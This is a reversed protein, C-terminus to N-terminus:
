QVVSAAWILPKVPPLAPNVTALDIMRPGNALHDPNLFTALRATFAEAGAPNLHLPDLRDIKPTPLDHADLVVLNPFRAQVSAVFARYRATLGLKDWESRIPDGIPPLLWVVTAGHVAALSLLREIYRQHDAGPQWDTPYFSDFVAENEGPLWLDPRRTRPPRAASWGLHKAVRTRLGDRHRVSPVLRALALSGGLGGDPGTWALDLCDELGAVEPLFQHNLRYGPLLLFPAYDVVVVRPRAGSDIASRLAFYSTAAPAAPVAHLSVRRGLHRELALPSIGFKILSDGLCFIEAQRARKAIAKAGYRWELAVPDALDPWAGIGVEIMAVLAVMGLLSKAWHRRHSVTRDSIHM